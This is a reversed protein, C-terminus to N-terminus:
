LTIFTRPQASSEPSAPPEPPREGPRYALSDDSYQYQVPPTQYGNFSNRILVDTSPHKQRVLGVIAGFQAAIVLLLIRSM